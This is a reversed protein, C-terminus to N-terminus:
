VLAKDKWQQFVSDLFHFCDFSVMKDRDHQNDSPNDTYGRLGFSSNYDPSSSICDFIGRVEEGKGKGCHIPTNANM